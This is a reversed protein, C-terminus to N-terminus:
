RGANRTLIQRMQEILQPTQLDRSQLILHVFNDALIEDPHIIYGTNQGIKALYEPTKDPDLLVPVGDTQFPEWTTEEGVVVMLKFELFKFFPGGLKSEYKEPSAFLVPAVTIEEGNRTLPIVCNVLPADPNTLKRDSLSPPLQIEQCIRFGILSYLQEQLGPNHSSMVHFLEHLVLRELRDASVAVRAAPLVVLNGRCYAAGGEEKGDTKVFLIQEPLPLIYPRCKQEISDLVAKIATKESENWEFVHQSVFHLYADTTVNDDSQLRCQRDFPSMADVFKDHRSLKEVATQKDAFGASSHKHIRVADGAQPSGALLVGCGAVLFLHPTM